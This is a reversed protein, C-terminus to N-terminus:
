NLQCVFGAGAETKTVTIVSAFRNSQVAQHDIYFIQHHEGLDCLLAVTDRVGEASLHQTPEDLILLDCAIGARRLLMRSLAVSAVVRLRQAEGGSWAEWRVAKTMHPKLISVTLGPTVKGTKTEREIDFAVSWGELGVTPLMQNTENELEELAEKLLYLRIQKCYGVWDRWRQESRLARKHVDELEAIEGTLKRVDSRWTAVAQSHPNVSDRSQGSGCFALEAKLESRKAGLRTLHDQADNSAECFKSIEKKVQSLDADCKELRATILECEKELKALETRQQKVHSKDASKIAQGCTPCVGDTKLAKELHRMKARAVAEKASQDARREALEQQRRRSARLETEAGDYKLDWKGWDNDIKTILGDLEKIRAERKEEREACEREWDAMRAKEDALAQQARELSSKASVIANAHGVAKMGCRTAMEKAAVSRRDWRDLDLTDSLTNLKPTPGLDLFLPEGQGMLIVCDFMAASMGVLKDISEQSAVDGDLTLGNTKTSRKIFRKVGDVQVCVKVVAHEHGGWTKVDPNKLGKVTSGYLCWRLADFLTSKSAGNSGLEPDVENIGMVFHVGGGLKALSLTHKGIYEKFDKVTISRFVLNM